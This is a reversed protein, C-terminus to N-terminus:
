WRPKPAKGWYYQAPWRRFRRRGTSGHKHVTVHGVWVKTGRGMSGPHYGLKPKPLNHHVKRYM